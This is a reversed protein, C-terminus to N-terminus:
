TIWKLGRKKRKKMFEDGWAKASAIAQLTAGKEGGAIFFTVITVVASHNL